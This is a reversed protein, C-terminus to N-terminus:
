RKCRLVCELAASLPAGWAADGHNRACEVDTQVVRCPSDAGVRYGRMRSGIQRTRGWQPSAWLQAAPSAETAASVLVQTLVKSPTSGASLIGLTERFPQGRSLPQQSASSTLGPRTSTHRSASGPTGAERWPIRTRKKPTSFPSTHPPTDPEPVHVMAARCRRRVAEGIAQALTANLCASTCQTADDHRFDTHTRSHLAVGASLLSQPLAHARCRALKLHQALEVQNCLHSCRSHPLNVCWVWVKQRAVLPVSGTCPLQCGSSDCCPRQLASTAAKAAAAASQSRAM